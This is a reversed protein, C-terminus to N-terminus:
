EDIEGPSGWNKGSIDGHGTHIFSNKLPVSIDAGAFDDTFM